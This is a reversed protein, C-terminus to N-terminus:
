VGPPVDFCTLFSHGDLVFLSFATIPMPIKPMGGAMLSVPITAPDNRMTSQAM